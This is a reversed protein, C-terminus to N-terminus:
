LTVDSLKCLNDLDIKFGNWETQISDYCYKLLIQKGDKTPFVGSGGTDKKYYIKEAYKKYFSHGAQFLDYAKVYDTKYHWGMYYMFALNTRASPHIAQIKEFYESAKQFNQTCGIGFNYMIGVYNCTNDYNTNKENKTCLEYWFFSKNMDSTKEYYLGIDRMNLNMKENYLNPELYIMEHLAKENQNNQNYAKQYYLFALKKDDLKYYYYNGIIYLKESELKIDILEKSKLLNYINHNHNTNKNNILYDICMKEIQHNLEPCVLTLISLSNKNETFCEQWKFATDLESEVVVLLKDNNKDKNNSM